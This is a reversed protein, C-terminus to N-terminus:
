LKPRGFMLDHEDSNLTLRSFFSLKATATSVHDNLTLCAKLDRQCELFFVRSRLDTTEDQYSNVEQNAQPYLHQHIADLINFLKKNSERNYHVSRVCRYVTEVLDMMEKKEQLLQDTFTFKIESVVTEGCCDQPKIKKFTIVNDQHSARITSM